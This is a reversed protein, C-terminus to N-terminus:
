EAVGIEMVRISRKRRWWAKVTGKLKVISVAYYMLKAQTEDVGGCRCAEYFMRHVDEWPQRMEACGVDHVVSANRYKGEFPGGIATWFVSPISAGNVIAGTPARWRRGQSDIYFFDERLTMNRGDADWVAM